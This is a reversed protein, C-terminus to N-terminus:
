RGNGREVEKLAAILRDNDNITLAGIHGVRFIKNGLEGGNPCIFIGYENKLTEFLCHTSVGREVSLPTVANSLSNSFIKYPLERIKMRFDEAIIKIKKREQEIGCQSIEELRKSLQLIIGVAPTFPTQGREANKLYNILGFYLSNVNISMVRNVARESLVLIALGPPLALAKQSGTLMIDVGWKEMYIPDAIFSSIADVILFLGYKKCFEGIMEMDYLVGTSTEHMNVLLGSYNNGQYLELQEKTLGKGEEVRIQDYPIRHIKCIEVFRAGFSGGNIILLNDKSSFSNIVATEMAATGSGTLFVARSNKGSYALELMKKESEFIVESFEATRFYPLQEAGLQVIDEPMCVPGVTFNLM